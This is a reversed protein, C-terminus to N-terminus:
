AAMVRWLFLFTQVLDLDLKHLHYVDRVIAQTFSSCLECNLFAFLSLPVNMWLM